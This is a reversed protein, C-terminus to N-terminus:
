QQQRTMQQKWIWTHTLDALKALTLLDDRGFTETQRWADGSRYSRTFKTNHMVGNEVAREWISAKVLGIRIEHVPKTPRSDDAGQPRKSEPSNKNM